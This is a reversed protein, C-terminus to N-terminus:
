HFERWPRRLTKQALSSPIGVPTGDHQMWDDVWEDNPNGLIGVLTEDCRCDGLVYNVTFYCTNRWSLVRMDLQLKTEPYEVV